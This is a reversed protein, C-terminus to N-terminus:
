SGATFLWVLSQSAGLGQYTNGLGAPLTVTFTFSQSAGAAVSGLSVPGSTGGIKNAAFFADLTLGNVVTTTNGGVTKTVTLLLKNCLDTASGTVAGSQSCALPALTFSSAAATGTNAITVTASSTGGPVLTTVGGYKNITSCTASNVAVSNTDTSNCTTTTQGVAQTETMVLTGDSVTNANNTIQATFASLTGTMSLALAATAGVGAILALPAFRRRRTRAAPLNETM